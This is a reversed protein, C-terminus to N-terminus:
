LWRAARRLAAQRAGAAGRAPLAVVDRTSRRTQPVGRTVAARSSAERRARVHALTTWRQTSWASAQARRLRLQSAHSQRPSWRSPFSGLPPIGERRTEAQRVKGVAM